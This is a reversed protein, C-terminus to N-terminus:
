GKFLVNGLGNKKCLHLKEQAHPIKEITPFIALPKQEGEYELGSMGM